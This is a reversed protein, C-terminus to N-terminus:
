WIIRGGWEGIGKEMWGPMGAGDPGATLVAPGVTPLAPSYCATKGRVPLGVQTSLWAGWAMSSMMTLM